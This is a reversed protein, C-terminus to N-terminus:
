NSENMRVRARRSLDLARRAIHTQARRMCVYVSVSEFMEDLLEDQFVSILLGQKESNILTGMQVVSAKARRQFGERRSENREM